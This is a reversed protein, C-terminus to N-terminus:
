SKKWEAMLRIPAVRSRASPGAPVRRGGNGARSFQVLVAATRRERQPLAAHESQQQAAQGVLEDGILKAHGFRRDLGVHALDQVLEMDVAPRLDDRAQRAARTEFPQVSRGARM